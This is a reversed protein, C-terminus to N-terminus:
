ERTEEGTKKVRVTVEKKRERNVWIQQGIGFLTTAVWYLALGAPFSMAFFMTMLPLVFIMQKTITQEPGSNKSQPMTMKSLIYQSVGALVPLFFRDPKTLDIIGLFTTKLHEPLYIFSYVKSPDIGGLGERLVAYLAFIIPLQIFLPLCSSFPSVGYQKYFEMQAKALAQQDGKYQEKLKNLEPVLKQMKRQSRSAKISSPLIAFRILITLLIIAIGLDHGPIINYLFVLLNLLPKYLIENWLFSM